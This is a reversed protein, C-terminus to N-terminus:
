AMLRAAALWAIWAASVSAVIGITVRIAFGAPGAVFSVVVKTVANTTFCLLVALQAAPSALVENRLLMAASIAGSHADAFGSAAVGAIAASPGLWRSLLASGILVVTVIAGFILAARLSVPRGLSMDDDTPKEARILLLTGYAGSVIAAAACAPALRWALTADIAFVVTFLFIATTVSSFSAAAATSGVLAPNAKARQGMAGHTTTSSVLGGLVGALVLGKTPGWVRLGVYGLANIAMVLVVVIWMKNPNFVRWPDVTRDPLLPLVILAAALLLLGDHLERDTLRSKVIEHLWPRSALLVTVIVAAAGAYTPHAKSLAGLAFTALLAVETTIGFDEERTRLYGAITMAGVLLAFTVLLFNSESFAGFVGLLSVLAFTRVGAIERNPGSGKSREREAGILLGVGLAVATPVVFAQVETEV